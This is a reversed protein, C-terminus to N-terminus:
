YKKVPGFAYMRFTWKGGRRRKSGWFNVFGKRAQTRQECGLEESSTRLAWGSMQAKVFSSFRSNGCTKKLWKLIFLQYSTLIPDRM